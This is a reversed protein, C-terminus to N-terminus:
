GRGAKLLNPGGPAPPKVDRGTAQALRRRAEAASLGTKPNIRGDDAAPKARPPGNQPAAGSPARRPQGGQRAAQPAAPEELADLDDDSFETPLDPLGEGSRRTAADLVNATPQTTLLKRDVTRHPAIKTGAAPGASHKYSVGEEAVRRFMSGLKNEYTALMEEQSLPPDDPGDEEEEAGGFEEYLGGVVEDADDGFEDEPDAGSSQASMSSPVTVRDRVAQGAPGTLRRLADEPSRHSTPSLPGGNAVLEAGNGTILQEFIDPLQWAFDVRVGHQNCVALIRDVAEQGEAMQRKYRKYKRTSAM